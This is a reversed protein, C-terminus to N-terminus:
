KKSWIFINRIQNYINPRLGKNHLCCKRHRRELNLIEEERQIITFLAGVFGIIINVWYPLPLVIAFLVIGLLAGLMGILPSTDKNRDILSRRFSIDNLIDESKEPVVESIIDFDKVSGLIAHIQRVVRLDHTIHGGWRETRVYTLIGMIWIVFGAVAFVEWPPSQVKGGSINLGALLAAVTVGFFALFFNLYNARQNESHRVHEYAQKYIELLSDQEFKNSNLKSYDEKIM